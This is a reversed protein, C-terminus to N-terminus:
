QANGKRHELSSASERHASVLVSPDIPLSATGEALVGPEPSELPQRQHRPNAHSALWLALEKM